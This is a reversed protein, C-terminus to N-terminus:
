EIGDKGSVVLVDDAVQRLAGQFLIGKMREVGVVSFALVYLVNDIDFLGAVHRSVIRDCRLLHLAPAAM